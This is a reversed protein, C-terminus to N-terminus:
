PWSGQTSAAARSSLESQVQTKLENAVEAVKIALSSATAAGAGVASASGHAGDEMSYGSAMAIVDEGSLIEDVGRKVARDTMSADPAPSPTPATQLPDSPPPPAPPTPNFQSCFMGLQNRFENAMADGFARATASDLQETQPLSAFARAIGATPNYTGAVQKIQELQIASGSPKQAAVQSNSQLEVLEATAAALTLKAEELKAKHVELNQRYDVLDQIKKDYSAQMQACVKTLHEQASRAKDVSAMGEHLVEKDSKPKKPFCEQCIEDALQPKEALRLRMAEELIDDPISDATFSEDSKRARGKSNRQYWGSDSDKSGGAFNSGRGKGSGGSGAGGSGSGGGGNGKKGKPVRFPTSCYKCADPGKDPVGPKPMLRWSKLNTGPYASCKQNECVIYGRVM